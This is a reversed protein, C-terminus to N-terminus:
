VVTSAAVDPRCGWFGNSRVHDYYYTGQQTFFDSMRRQIAADIPLPAQTGNYHDHVHVDLSSWDFQRLGIFRAIATLVRTQDARLLDNDVICFAEDPFAERWMNIPQDYMSILLPAEHICPSWAGDIAGTLTKVCALYRDISQTIAASFSGDSDKIMADAWAPPFHYVDDVFEQAMHYHSYSREIPRRLAIVIKMNGNPYAAKIRDRAQIRSM